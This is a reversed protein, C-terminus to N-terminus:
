RSGAPDDRGVCGAACPTMMLTEAAEIRGAVALPDFRPADFAEM